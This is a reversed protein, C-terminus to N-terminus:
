IVATGWVTRKTMAVSQGALLFGAGGFASILQIRTRLDTLDIKVTSFEELAWGGTCQWVDVAFFSLSARENYWCPAAGYKVWERGARSNIRLWAELVPRLSHLAGTRIGRDYATTAM